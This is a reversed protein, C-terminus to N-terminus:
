RQPGCICRTAITIRPCPRACNSSAIQASSIRGSLTPSGHSSSRGKEFMDYSCGLLVDRCFQIVKEKKV